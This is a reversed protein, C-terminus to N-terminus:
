TFLPQEHQKSIMLNFSCYQDKLSRIRLQNWKNIEKKKIVIIEM